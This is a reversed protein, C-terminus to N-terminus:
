ERAQPLSCFAAVPTLRLLEDWNRPPSIHIQLQGEINLVLLTAARGTPSSVYTSFELTCVSFAGCHQIILPLPKLSAEAQVAGITQASGQVDVLLCVGRPSRPDRAPAWGLSRVDADADAWDFEIQAVIPGGGTRQGRDVPLHLM